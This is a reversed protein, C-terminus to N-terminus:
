NDQVGTQFPQGLFYAGPPCPNQENSKGWSRFCCRTCLLRATFRLAVFGQQIFSSLLSANERGTMARMKQKWENKVNSWNSKQYLDPWILKRILFRWPGEQRWYVSTTRIMAHWSGYDKGEGGWKRHVSWTDASCLLRVNRTHVGKRAKQRPHEDKAWAM